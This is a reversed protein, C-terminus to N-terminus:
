QYERLRIFLRKEIASTLSKTIKEMQNKNVKQDALHWELSLGTAGDFDGSYTTFNPPYSSFNACRPESKSVSQM